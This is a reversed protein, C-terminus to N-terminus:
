GLATGLGFEVVLRGGAWATLLLALIGAGYLLLFLIRSTTPIETRASIRWFLLGIFLVAVLVAMQQHVDFVASAAPPLPSRERALLGTVIAAPLMLTGGLQVWWGTRALERHKLVIGTLDFVFGAVLLGIPFHVVFPHLDPM